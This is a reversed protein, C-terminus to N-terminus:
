RELVIKLDHEDEHVVRILDWGEESVDQLVQSFLRAHDNIVRAGVQRARQFDRQICTEVPTDLILLCGYYGYHKSLDRLEHRIEPLLAVSDAVCFKNHLMRKLLIYCFLDFVDDNATQDKENDCIMGRCRDTSVIATAPFRQAAFTSKGAAALGCLVLLTKNPLILHETM